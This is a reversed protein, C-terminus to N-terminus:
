APGGQGYKLACVTPFMAKYNERWGAAEAGLYKDTMVVYEPAEGQILFM